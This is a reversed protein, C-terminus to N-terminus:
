LKWQQCHKSRITASFEMATIPNYIPKSIPELCTLKSFSGSLSEASQVNQSSNVKHMTLNLRWNLLCFYLLLPWMKACIVYNKFWFCERGILLYTNGMCKTLTPHIVLSERPYQSGKKGVRTFVQRQRISVRPPGINLSCLPLFKLVVKVALYSCSYFVRLFYQYVKFAFFLCFATQQAVSRPWTFNNWTKYRGSHLFM